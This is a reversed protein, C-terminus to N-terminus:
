LFSHVTYSKQFDFHLHFIGDILYADVFPARVCLAVEAKLAGSSIDTETMWILFKSNSTASLVGRSTTAVDCRCPVKLLM